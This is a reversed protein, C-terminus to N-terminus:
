FCYLISINRYSLGPMDGKQYFDDYVKGSRTIDFSFGLSSQNKFTFPILTLGAAAGVTFHNLSYDPLSAGSEDVTYLIYAPSLGVKLQLLHELNKYRLITFNYTVPLRLQTSIIKRDGFYQNAADNYTFKQNNVIVDLGSEISNRKLNYEYHAGVYGGVSTAGTFADPEVNEVVEM